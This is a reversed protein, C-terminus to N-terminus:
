QPTSLGAEELSGAVVTKWYGSGIHVVTDAARWPGGPRLPSIASIFFLRM